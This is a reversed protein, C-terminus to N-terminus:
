FAYYWRKRITFLDIFFSYSGNFLRIRNLKNRSKDSQRFLGNERIHVVGKKRSYNYWLVYTKDIMNEITYITIVM